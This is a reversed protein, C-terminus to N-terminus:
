SKNSSLGTHPLLVLELTLPKSKFKSKDYSSSKPVYASMGNGGKYFPVVIDATFNSLTDMM